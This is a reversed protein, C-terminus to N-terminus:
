RGVNEKLQEQHQEKQQIIRDIIKRKHVLESYLEDRGFDMNPNSKKLEEKRAKLKENLDIFLRTLVLVDLEKMSKAYMKIEELKSGTFHGKVWNCRTCMTQYNEIHNRGGKSKPQIHDKTMLVEQGNEDVAYLNFHYSVVGGSREKAFYVGEIGCEVCKCGKEKFTWYRHSSMPILDGDFDVKVEQDPIM